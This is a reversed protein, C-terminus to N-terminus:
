TTGGDEPKSEQAKAEAKTSEMFYGALAARGKEMAANQETKIAQYTAELKELIHPPVGIFSGLQPRITFMDTGVGVGPAVESQKKSMYTLLVAKFLDTTTPDHRANMLVSLAHRSGIGIAAFGVTDYCAYHAQGSDDSAEIVYIHPYIGPGGDMDVGAVIAQVLPLQFRMLKESIESVFREVMSQQKAIFSSQDLGFPALIHSEARKLKISNYYRLYLGVIDRVRWWNKPEKEIRETVTLHVDRLIEAHLASDGATMVVISNTVPNIKPTDPEFEVDGATLMRDSAGLVGGAAITAICVTM